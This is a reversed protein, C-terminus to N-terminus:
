LNLCAKLFGLFIPHPRLPRSQFEPHFQTGLFFPHLSEPLEIAEVLKGDPSFGSFVMGHDKYTKRYDNNFEYRHRHREHIILSPGNREISKPAYKEYLGALRSGPLIQCPWSGLRITGGYQHKKLYEKQDPMIHIVPHPTQPDVEESDAKELRCISRGFEIAAMQMGFCLGLYPIKNERAFRVAAIKGETGRSGWGQPVIIGQYDKLLVPDNEIKESELATVEALVQHGAAAHRVAELVSIYVDSHLAAGHEVYKGVLAIKVKKKATTLRSVFKEWEGVKPPRVTLKLKKQIKEAFRESRLKLPIKYILDTDPNDIISEPELFCHKALSEIRPADIPIENRTVLFDPFIGMERLRAVAHQTPKTKLEGVNRLLPLYTVMIHVSAYERSLERVAHLFPQNELDGITGGIEVLAIEFDKTPKLILEKIENIVDPFMEVDRGQYAFAREKRIVNQYVKGTTINHNKTLSTNLFREYNGLDQDIEGGDDTVFVEGHEAPRMTGADVSVYPDIKVITTKYGASQFLLGLSATTIGKGM